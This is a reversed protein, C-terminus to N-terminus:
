AAAREHELADLVSDNWLKLAHARRHARQLPYELTFGIAGCVQQCRATVGYLAPGAFALAAVGPEGGALLALGRVATAADALLQQVPGLGSLTTGFARRQRAYDTTLALAYHGIGASYGVTAAIWAAIRRDAPEGVLRGAEGIHGARHVGIADGYPVAREDRAALAAISAGALEVAPGGCLEVAPGGTREVAPGSGSVVVATGAGGYRILEGALLPGGLLEDIANFPALRRGLELAAPGAFPLLDPDEALAPWGAQALAQDLAPVRDDGPESPQWSPAWGLLAREAATAVSEAFAKREPGANM